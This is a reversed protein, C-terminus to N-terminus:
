GRATIRALWERTGPLRIASPAPPGPVAKGEPVGRREPGPRTADRKRWRTEVLRRLEAAHEARLREVEAAHAEEQDRLEDTLRAVEAAHEAHLAAERHMARKELAIAHRLSAVIVTDPSPPALPDWTEYRGEQFPAAESVAASASSRGLSPQVLFAGICGPHTPQDPSAIRARFPDAYVKGFPVVEATSGKEAAVETVMAHGDM